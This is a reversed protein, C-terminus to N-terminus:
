TTSTTSRAMRMRQRRGELPNLRPPQIMRNINFVTIIIEDDYDWGPSATLNMKRRGERVDVRLRM